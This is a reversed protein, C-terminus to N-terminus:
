SNKISVNQLANALEQTSDSLREFIDYIEKQKLFMMPDKEENFLQTVGERVTQDTHEEMELIQKCLDETSESISLLGVAKEILEATAHIRGALEAMLPPVPELHYATMRYSIGELDDLLHDLHAFLLSIDEPDIPTVFTKHLRIRLDHLTQASEREMAKIRVAAGALSPNGQKAGQHLLDSALSITAAQKTLFQWFTEEKPLLRV